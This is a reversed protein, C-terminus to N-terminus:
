KTRVWVSDSRRTYVRISHEIRLQVENAFDLKDQSGVLELIRQLLVQHVKTGIPGLVKDVRQPLAQRNPELRAWPQGPRPPPPPDSMWYLVVGCLLVGAVISPWNPQKM